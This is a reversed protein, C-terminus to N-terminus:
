PLRAACMKVVWPPPRIDISAMTERILDVEETSLAAPPSPPEQFNAVWSTTVGVFAEPPLSSFDDEDFSGTVWEATGPPPLAADDGEATAGTDQVEDDSDSFDGDPSQAEDFLRYGAADADDAIVEEQEPEGTAEADTTDLARAEERAPPPEEVEAAMIACLLIAFVVLIFNKQQTKIYLASM